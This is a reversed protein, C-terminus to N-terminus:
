ENKREKTLKHKFVIYVKKCKPCEYYYDGDDENNRINDIVELKEKCKPCLAM